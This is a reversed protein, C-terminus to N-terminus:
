KIIILLRGGTRERRRERERSGKEKKGVGEVGERAGGGRGKRGM